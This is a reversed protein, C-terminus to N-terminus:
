AANVHQTILPDKKELYEMVLSKEAFSAVLDKAVIATYGFPRNDLLNSLGVIQLSGITLRSTKKHEVQKLQLSGSHIVYVGYPKHGEYFLVQGASYHKKPHKRQWNRSEEPTITQALLASKTHDAKHPM